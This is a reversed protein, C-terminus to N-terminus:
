NQLIRQLISIAPLRIIAWGEFVRQRGPQVQIAAADVVAAIAPSTAPKVAKDCGPQACCKRQACHGRRRPPRGRWRPPRGRWRPSNAGTPGDSFKAGSTVMVKDASVSSRAADLNHQQHRIIQHEAEALVRYPKSTPSGDKECDSVIAHM